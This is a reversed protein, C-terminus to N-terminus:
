NSFFQFAHLFTNLTSSSNCFLFHLGATKVPDGVPKGFQTIIVQETESVTYVGGLTVFTAITLIVILIPTLFRKM